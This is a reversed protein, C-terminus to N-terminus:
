LQFHGVVLAFFELFDVPLLFLNKRIDIEESIKSACKVINVAVDKKSIAQIRM